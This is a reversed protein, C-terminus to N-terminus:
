VKKEVYKINLVNAVFIDYGNELKIEGMGKIEKGNIQTGNKTNLDEIYFGDAKKNLKFHKKGIFLLDDPTVVDLFDERGFIGQYDKIIFERKEMLILKALSKSSNPPPTLTTKLIDRKSTYNKYLLIIILAIIIALLFLYMWKFTVDSLLYGMLTLLFVSVIIIIGITTSNIRSM